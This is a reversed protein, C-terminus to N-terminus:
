KPNFFSTCCFTVAKDVNGKVSGTPQGGSAACTGPMYGLNEVTKAGALTACLTATHRM